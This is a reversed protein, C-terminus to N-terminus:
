ERNLNTVGFYMYALSRHKLPIIRWRAFTEVIHAATLGPNWLAWVHKIHGQMKETMIPTSYWAESTVLMRYDAKFGNM